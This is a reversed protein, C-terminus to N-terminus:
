ELGLRKAEEPTIEEWNPGLEISTKREGLGYKLELVTDGVVNRVVKSPLNVEFFYGDEGEGKDYTYSVFYSGDSVKRARWGIINLDGKIKQMSWRINTETSASPQGIVGYSKKVLSIAKEKPSLKKGEESVPHETSGSIVWIKGTKRDIKYMLGKQSPLIHYRTTQLHIWFAM